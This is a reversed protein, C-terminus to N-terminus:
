RSLFGWATLLFSMSSTALRHESSSDDHAATTTSRTKTAQTQTPRTHTVSHTRASLDRCLGRSPVHGLHIFFSPCAQSMKSRVFAASGKVKPGITDALQMTKYSLTSSTGTDWQGLDIYPIVQSSPHTPIRSLHTLKRGGNPAPPFPGPDSISSGSRAVKHVLIM